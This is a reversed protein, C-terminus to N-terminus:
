YKLLTVGGYKSETCVPLSHYVSLLNLNDIAADKARSILHAYLHNPKDVELLALLTDVIAEYLINDKLKDYLRGLIEVKNSKRKLSFKETDLLFKFYYHIAYKMVMFLEEEKVDPFSTYGYLYSIMIQVMKIAGGGAGDCVSNFSKNELGALWKQTFVKQLVGTSDIGHLFDLTDEVTAKELRFNFVSFDLAGSYPEISELNLAWRGNFIQAKFKIKVAKGELSMTAIGSDSFNALGFLRAEVVNTNCDRLYFTYYGEDYVSRGVKRSKVIAIKEYEKDIELLNVNLYESYQSNTGFAQKTLM